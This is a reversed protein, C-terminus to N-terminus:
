SLVKQYIRMLREYHADANFRRLATQRGRHGMEVAATRNRALWALRGRLDEANGPEVLFGNEQHSVVEPMGGIRSAVVPRGLLLSEVLALGFTEYWESPAVTCIAGRILQKLADNDQFGVLKVHRMRRSAIIREMAARAGGNGAIVFPVDRIGAAAKLLTFVGKVRELRGFYLFYEGTGTSPKTGRSDVFNHVTTIKSEAVGHEIMKRRVFESVAIFHDIHNMSGLWRSVYSEAVSLTTRGISARNCRRPLARWFHTGQCAECVGKGNHLSRVPCILKYDHVTQVVPVGADRLPGLISSTLQGYYVHLHALAPAEKAVLERLNRRAVRSYLFRLADGVAPQQVDVPDPFHTNYETAWNQSSATAFPVIKHGKSLLLQELELFYRDSGGRIHYHQSVNLIRM